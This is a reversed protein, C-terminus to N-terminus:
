DDFNKRQECAFCDVIFTKQTIQMERCDKLKFMWHWSLVRTAELDIHSLYLSM